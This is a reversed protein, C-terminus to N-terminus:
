ETIPKKRFGGGKPDYGWIEEVDIPQYNSATGQPLKTIKGGRLQWKRLEMDLKWREHRKAM